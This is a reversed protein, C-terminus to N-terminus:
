ARFDTRMQSPLQPEAAGAQGEPNMEALVKEIQHLNCELTNRAVEAAGHYQLYQDRLLEVTRRTEERYDEPAQATLGSLPVERLGMAALATERRQDLSRLALSLAQERKMCENLGALDDARVVQTKEQQVSTLEELTAALEQLVGLYSLFNTREM